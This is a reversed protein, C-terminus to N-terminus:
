GEFSIAFAEFVRTLLMGYPLCPKVREIAKRMQILTM